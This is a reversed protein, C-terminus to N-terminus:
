KEAFNESDTEQCHIKVCSSYSDCELYWQAVACMFVEFWVNFRQQIVELEEEIVLKEHSYRVFLETHWQM